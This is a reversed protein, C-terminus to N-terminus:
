KAWFRVRIMGQALKISAPIGTRQMEQIALDKYAELYSLAKSHFNVDTIAVVNLAGYCTLLLTLVLTVHKLM